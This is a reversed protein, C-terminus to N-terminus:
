KVKTLTLKDELNEVREKLNEHDNTLVSLSVELRNLSNSIKKLQDTAEKGIWALIGLLATILITAIPTM